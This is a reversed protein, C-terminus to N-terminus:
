HPALFSLLPLNRLISYLIIVAAIALPVAPKAALNPKRFLLVAVAALPILLPNMRVCALIDGHILAYLGRGTGCGACYLGTLAYLPCPPMWATHDPNNFWLLAIGALFLAGGAIWAIKKDSSGRM